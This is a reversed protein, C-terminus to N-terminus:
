KQTRMVANDYYMLLTGNEQLVNVPLREAVEVITEYDGNQWCKSFGARVAESRFVRLRGRADRYEQFERLLTKERLRELDAERDVDPVYWRGEGDMLFNQELILSLEPLVEYKEKHLERLFKPQVEQYTQSGTSLERRLWQIASREDYVFLSMQEVQKAKMRKRDYEAVQAPLFYMDDRMPFRQKLGVYFDSASIPITIGRQVHFAVMRDYLLFGQREAVIEVNGDEEVFIPLQGLHQRTFDWVGNETGAELRFRQELGLSPKYASIVLDQKVAGAVYSLQKTTGKQKDLTRVDAIVFGARFMAEQIAMWVSNKSNHFEVTLWRGPKLIRYNERFCQEMLDKYEPLGKGQVKNMIAEHKNNTFVKLWAEWLFNLESYMLNEGFPPDTFIYDISNDPINMLNTSSQTAIFNNSSALKLKSHRVLKNNLFYFPSIEAQLPSIYLTGSLPGVHRNHQPMYRNLKHLRSHSSTFWSLLYNRLRKESCQNIKGFVASLVWFNRKTFFHHVRTVGHSIKPQATNYGEPMMCTPYWYPIKTEEIKKLLAMDKQDLRKEFRQGRKKGAVRISYNILVPVQKARRISEGVAGDMVTEFARDLNRMTLLAGCQCCKLEKKVKWERQEKKDVILDWFLLEQTCDPCIFVDSWIVYVIEGKVPKKDGNIDTKYQTRGDVVHATEYMWGCEEEVEGLIRLAVREFKKVDVPTNYNYAIFTAAPSLECLIAKRAGWKIYPMEEEIRRKLKWDPKGCMQAAVGTMGTGCFGDFVLDDPNTYHLIYRLVAKYPVKTAYSHAMYIPDNKGESVDTAFPHRRYNDTTEDYPKGHTKIFHKIFPNPCATYYPPDSLALIDEDRAIPFGDISRLEDLTEKTLNYNKILEHM